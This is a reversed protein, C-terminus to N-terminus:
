IPPKIAAVLLVLAVGAGALIRAWRTLRRRPKGPPQALKSAPRAEAPTAHAAPSPRPTPSPQAQERREPATPPKQTSPDQAKGTRPLIAMADLRVTHVEALTKDLVKLLRGTDYEFQAPNLELAQREMLSALSPPLEEASPM